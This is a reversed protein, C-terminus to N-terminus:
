VPIATKNKMMKTTNKRKFNYTKEPIMAARINHISVLTRM